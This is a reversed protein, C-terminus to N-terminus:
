PGSFGLARDLSWFYWGGNRAAGAPWARLELYSQTMTQPVATHKEVNKLLRSPHLGALPAAPVAEQPAAFHRPGRQSFCLGCDAHTRPCAATTGRERLLFAEGARERSAGPQAASAARAAGSGWPRGLSADGWREGGSGRTSRPVRSGSGPLAPPICAINHPHASLVAGLAECCM